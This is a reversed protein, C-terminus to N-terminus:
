TNVFYNSYNCLRTFKPVCLEYLFLKYNLLTISTFLLQVFSRNTIRNVETYKLYIRM